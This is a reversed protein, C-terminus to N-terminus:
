KESDFKNLYVSKQLIPAQTKGSAMSFNEVEGVFKPSHSDYLDGKLCSKPLHKLLYRDMKLKM